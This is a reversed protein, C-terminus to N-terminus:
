ADIATERAPVGLSERTEQVRLWLRGIPRSTMAISGLAEGRTDNASVSRKQEAQWLACSEDAAAIAEAYLEELQPKLRTLTPFKSTLKHRRTNAPNILLRADGLELGTFAELQEITGKGFRECILTLTRPFIRIFDAWLEMFDLWAACLRTIGSDDAVSTLKAASLLVDIPNRLLFIYRSNLFRAEYFPRFADPPAKSFHYDSFAIKDGVFDYFQSANALWHWWTHPEGPIFEPAHSSKTRQNEFDRHQNNYWTSFKEGHDDLFFNAESLILANSACNLLELTITTKSRGFGVIFICKEALRRCTVIEETLRAGEKVALESGVAENEQELSAIKVNLEDMEASRLALESNATELQTAREAHQIRLTELEGQASSLQNALDASNASELALTAELDSIRRALEDRAIRRAVAPVHQFDVERM